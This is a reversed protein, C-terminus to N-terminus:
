HLMIIETLDYRIYIGKLQLNNVDDLEISAVHILKARVSRKDAVVLSFQRLNNQPRRGPIM